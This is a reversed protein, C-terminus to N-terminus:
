NAMPVMFSSKRPGKSQYLSTNRMSTILRMMCVYCDCGLGVVYPLTSSSRGRVWGRRTEVRCQVSKKWSTQFWLSNYVLM